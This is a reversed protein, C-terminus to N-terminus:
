WSECCVRTTSAAAICSVAGGPVKPIAVGTQGPIVPVNALTFNGGAATVLLGTSASVPTGGISCTAANTPGVNQCTLSNRGGSINNAAVVSTAATTVTACDEGAFAALPLGLALIVFALIRKM